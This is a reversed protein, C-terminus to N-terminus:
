ETTVALTIPLSWPLGNSLHMDQVVSLYDAQQMFGTLPSYSGIALMELDAMQRSSVVVQPLSKARVQWEAGEAESVINLTLEGGHPAVLGDIMDYRRMERGCRLNVNDLETRPSRFKSM